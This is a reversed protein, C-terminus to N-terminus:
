VIYEDYCMGRLKMQEVKWETETLRSLINMM